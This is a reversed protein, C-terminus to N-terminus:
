GFSVINLAHPGEHNTHITAGAKRYVEVLEPVCVGWVKKGEKALSGLAKNLLIPTAKGSGRMDGRMLFCSGLSYGKETLDKIVDNSNADFFTTSEIAPDDFLILGGVWSKGQTEEIFAVPNINGLKEQILRAFEQRDTFHGVKSAYMDQLWPIEAGFQDLIDHFQIAFEISDPSVLKPTIIEPIVPRIIKNSPQESM